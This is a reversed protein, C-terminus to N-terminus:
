LTAALYDDIGKFGAPVMVLRTERV